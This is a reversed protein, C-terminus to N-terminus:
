KDLKDFLGDLKAEIKDGLAELKDDIGQAEIKAKVLDIVKEVKEDPLDVGLVEELAKVPEDKFKEQLEKNSKIENVIDEIRDFLDKIDFNKLAM